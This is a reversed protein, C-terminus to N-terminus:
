ITSSERSLVNEVAKGPGFCGTWAIPLGKVSDEDVATICTGWAILTSGSFDRLCGKM